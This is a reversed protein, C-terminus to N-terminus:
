FYKSWIIEDKDLRTLNLKSNTEQLFSKYTEFQSELKKIDLNSYGFKDIVKEIFEKKTM